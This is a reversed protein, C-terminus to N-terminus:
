KCYSVEASNFKLVLKRFERRIMPVISDSIGDRTQGRLACDFRGKIYATLIYSPPNGFGIEEVIANLCAQRVLFERSPMTM